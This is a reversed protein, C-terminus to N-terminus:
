LKFKGRCNCMEAVIAKDLGPIGVHLTLLYSAGIILRFLPITIYLVGLCDSLPCGLDM